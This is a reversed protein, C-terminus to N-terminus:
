RLGIESPAICSDGMLCHWRVTPWDRIASHLFGQKQVLNEPTTLNSAAILECELQQKNYNLGLCTTRTMCEKACQQLGTPELRKFITGELYLNHKIFIADTNITSDSRSALTHLTNACVYLLIVYTQSRFMSLRTNLMNFMNYYINEMRHKRFIDSVDYFM